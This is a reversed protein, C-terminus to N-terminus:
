PQAEVAYDVPGIAVAERLVAIPVASYTEALPAALALDVILLVAPEGGQSRWFLLLHM